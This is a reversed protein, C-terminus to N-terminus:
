LYATLDLVTRIHMCSTVNYCVCFILYYFDCTFTLYFSVFFFLYVNEWIDISFRFINKKHNGILVGREIHSKIMFYLWIVSFSIRIIKLKWIRYIGCGAATNKIIITNNWIFSTVFCLFRNKWWKKYTSRHHILIM